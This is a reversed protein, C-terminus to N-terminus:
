QFSQIRYDFIEKVVLIRRYSAVHTDSMSYLQLLQAVGFVNSFLSSAQWLFCGCWWRGDIAVYRSRWHHRISSTCRQVVIRWPSVVVITRTLGHAVFAMVVGAWCASSNASNPDLFYLDVVPRCQELRRLKSRASRLFAPRPVIFDFFFSCFSLSSALSLLRHRLVFFSQNCSYSSEEGRLHLSISFHHNPFCNSLLMINDTCNTESFPPFISFYVIFCIHMNRMWSCIAVSDVHKKNNM